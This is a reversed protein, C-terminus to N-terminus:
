RIWRVPMSSKGRVIAVKNDMAPSHNTCVKRSCCEGVSKLSNAFSTIRCIFNVRVKRRQAEVEELELQRKRIKMMYQAREEDHDGVSEDSDTREMDVDDDINPARQYGPPLGKNGNPMMMTRVEESDSDTADADYHNSAAPPPVYKREMPRLPQRALEPAAKNQVPKPPTSEASAAQESTNSLLNMISM